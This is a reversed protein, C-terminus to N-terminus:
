TDILELKYYQIVGFYDVVLVMWMPSDQGFFIVKDAPKGDFEYVFVDSQNIHFKRLFDNRSCVRSQVIRLLILENDRKEIVVHVPIGQNMGVALWRLVNGIESDTLTMRKSSSHVGDLHGCSLLLACVFVATYTIKMSSVNKKPGLPELWARLRGPKPCRGSAQVQTPKIWM